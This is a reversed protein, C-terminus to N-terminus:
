AVQAQAFSLTLQIPAMMFGVRSTIEQCAGKTSLRLEIYGGALYDLLSPFLGFCDM